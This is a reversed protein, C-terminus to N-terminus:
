AVSFLRGRASWSPKNTLLINTTMVLVVFTKCCLFVQSNDLSFRDAFARITALDVKGDLLWGASLIHAPKYELM